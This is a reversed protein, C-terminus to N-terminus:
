RHPEYSLRVVGETFTTAAILRMRIPLEGAHFPRVGEGWVVPHLWFRVEDVLSRRALHNALEGCGYSILDSPHEAKLAAVAEAPDPGLLRANWTLLEELTRSAVFKPILNILDAYPGDAAPWYKALEEYTERGLIVADAARLYCVDMGLHQGAILDDRSTQQVSYWPMEWGMFERYRDSEPFPGECFVAFTVDRSHLYALERVHTIDEPCGECQDAAPAADYWMMYKAFLQAFGVFIDILPVLGDAGILKTTPDVEVMPLRRREAALADSARTHAKEKVRLEDLRAQWTARDVVAPLMPNDAGNTNKPGDKM